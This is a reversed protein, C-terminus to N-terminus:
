EQSARPGDTRTLYGDLFEAARAIATRSEPAEPISGQHVHPMGEYVDLIAVHGGARIAQYQRVAHSLFIERTGVQILTPPFPRSYDGYVPSVYPHRQDGPDAYAAAAWSLSQADLSPDAASLTEYSDGGEALDSWPSLLHLAAPLALGEDRMRLVSGAALGGGASDGVIAMAQATTNAALLARWVNLVEGTVTRWDGRPALTYDISIVEAGTAAALLAPVALVAAASFLVYGGGHLYVLLRGDPHYDKPRIRLVPIGGLVEESSTICLRRALALHMPAIFASVQENKRDWDALSRPREFVPMSKRARYIAELSQAAEASVTGPITFDGTMRAPRM